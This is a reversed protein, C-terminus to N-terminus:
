LVLLTVPYVSAFSTPPNTPSIKSDVACADKQSISDELWAVLATPSPFVVKSIFFIPVNQLTYGRPTIDLHTMAMSLNESTYRQAEKLSANLSLLKHVGQLGSVIRGKEADTM